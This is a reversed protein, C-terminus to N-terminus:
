WRYSAARLYAIEEEYERQQREMEWPEEEWSDEEMPEDLCSLFHEPNGSNCIMDILSIHSANVSELLDPEWRKIYGLAMDFPIVMERLEQAATTHM